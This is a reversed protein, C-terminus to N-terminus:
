EAEKLAGVPCVGICSRCMICRDNDILLDRGMLTMADVPCVGVCTGCADCVNRDIDIM